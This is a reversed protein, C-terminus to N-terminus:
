VRKLYAGGNEGQAVHASEHYIGRQMGAFCRQEYLRLNVLALVLDEERLEDEVGSM